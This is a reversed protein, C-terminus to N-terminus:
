SSSLNETAWRALTVRSTVGLKAYSNRLHTEVTRESLFLRGAIDSNSLGEGLLRVVQTERNTLVGDNRTTRLRLGLRRALQRARDAWPAAGSREFVAVVQTVTDRDGTLEAWELRTQAALLPAGMADFRGAVSALVDPDQTHLGRLRDAFASVLRPHEGDFRMSEATEALLRADGSRAAALGTFLTNLAVAGPDNYLSFRNFPSPVAIPEGLHTAIALSALETVQNL